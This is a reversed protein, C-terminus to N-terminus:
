HRSNDVSVFARKRLPGRPSHRWCAQLFEEWFRGLVKGALEDPTGEVRLRTVPRGGLVERYTAEFREMQEEELEAKRRRIEGPEGQLHIVMDPAPFWRYILRRFRRGTRVYRRSFPLELDYIYRDSLVLHAATNVVGRRYRVGQEVLIGGYFLPFKGLNKLVRDIAQLRTEGAPPADRPSYSRVWMARTQFRGWCGMYVSSTRLGDKALRKELAAVLASKGVGDVGVFAVLASRRRIRVGHAFRYRMSRLLNGPHRWILIRAARHRLDRPNASSGGLIGALAQRFVPELGFRSLHIRLYAEDLKMSALQRIRESYKGGLEKRGLLAHLVLHLLSDELSPLPIGHRTCRRRLLTNADLYILGRSVVSTHVDLSRFRDGDNTAFVVKSPIGLPVTKPLFHINRLVEAAPDL